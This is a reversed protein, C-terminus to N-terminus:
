REPFWSEVAETKPARQIADLIPEASGRVPDAV